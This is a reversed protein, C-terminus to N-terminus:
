RMAARQRERRLLNVVRRQRARADALTGTLADVASRAAPTAKWTRRIHTLSRRMSTRMVATFPCLAMGYRWAAEECALCHWWRDERVDRHHAPGCRLCKGERDYHAVHGLEHALTAARDESTVPLVHVTRTRFNAWGLAGEPMTDEWVVRVRLRYAPAILLAHIAAVDGTAAREWLDGLPPAPPAPIAVVPDVVQDVVQYYSFEMTPTPVTVPGTFVTNTSM